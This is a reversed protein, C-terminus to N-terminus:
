LVKICGSTLIGWEAKRLYKCTKVFTQLHTRLTFLVHTLDKVVDQTPLDAGAAGCHFIEAGMLLHEEYQKFPSLM